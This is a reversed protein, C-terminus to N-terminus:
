KIILDASENTVTKPNVYTCDIRSIAKITHTKVVWINNLTIRDGILNTFMNLM